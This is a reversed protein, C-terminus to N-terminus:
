DSAGGLVSFVVIMMVRIYQNALCNLLVSSSVRVTEEHNNLKKLVRKRLKRIAIKDDDDDAFEEALEYRFNM